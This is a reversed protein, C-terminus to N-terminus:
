ASCDDPQGGDTAAGFAIAALEEDTMERVDNRRFTGSVEQAPKGHARDLIAQAAMIAIRPDESALHKSLVEFAERTKTRFLAKVEPDEKPRGTPNGSQGRRFGGKGQPNSM